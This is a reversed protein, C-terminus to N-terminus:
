KKGISLNIWAISYKEERKTENDIRSYKKVFTENSLIRSKIIFTNRKIRVTGATSKKNLMNEGAGTFKVANSGTYSNLITKMRTM